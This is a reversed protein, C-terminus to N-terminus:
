QVKGDLINYLGVIIAEVHRVKGVADNGTGCVEGAGVCVLVNVDGPHLPASFLCCVVVTGLYQLCATCLQNNLRCNSSAVYQTM